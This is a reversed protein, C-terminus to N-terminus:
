SPATRGRHRDQMLKAVWRYSQKPTRRLDGRDVSVLGFHMTYGHSWEFNDMLTWLVYTRVDAGSERAAEIAALHTRLYDIRDADDVIGDALRTKDAFAAGNETVVLPLGTRRYTDVLLEELGQPSIEWAIDTRPHRPTFRFDEVGPFAAVEADGGDDVIDEVLSADPASDPASDPSADPLAVDVRAPTYYNVGLWDASGRVLELDGPRVLEPDALVPAVRLTGADYAGDVLPGLWIRNRIADVGDAALAVAPSDAWVPTLNLVLGVTDAGAARMRSAALGHSLLLHHAARHASTDVQKGPAHRGSGYGLYAACWPENLTAWVRVRDGLRDHVVMAYDAFHEATERVLWGGQDELGQPLDWHYLTAMPEIGRGLLGDVLREYYDLGRAQVAGSGLPVIRPWSISFRYYRVGLGAVLELDPGPDPYSACAVSGDTGDDIAGPVRTFTDWISPGKGDADPAGEIQYAASAVGFSLHRGDDLGKGM